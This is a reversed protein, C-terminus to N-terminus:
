HRKQAPDPPLVAVLSEQLTELQDLLSPDNCDAIAKALPKLLPAARKPQQEAPAALAGNVSERLRRVGDLERFWTTLAGKWPKQMETVQKKYEAPEEALAALARRVTSEFEDRVPAVLSDVQQQHADDLAALRTEALLVVQPKRAADPGGKTAKEADAILREAAKIDAPNPIRWDIALNATGKPFPRTSKFGSGSFAVEGAADDALALWWSGGPGTIMATSGSTVTVGAKGEGPDCRGNRNADLYATGGLYRKASGAGLVYVLSVRGHAEGVAVGAERWTGKLANPGAYVIQTAKTTKVEGVANTFATAYALYLSPQDLGVMILGDKAPAYGAAAFVPAHDIPAKDVPKVGQALLTRAAATLAPSFVLPPQAAAGGKLGLWQLSANVEKRRVTENMRNDNHARDARHSNLLALASAEDATPEVPKADAAALLMPLALLVSPLPTM